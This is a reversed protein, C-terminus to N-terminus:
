SAQKLAVTKRPRDKTPPRNDQPGSGSGGSEHKKEKPKDDKAILDDVPTGLIRALRFFLRESAVFTTSEVNRLHGESCRADQAVEATTKDLEMRKRRLLPTARPM